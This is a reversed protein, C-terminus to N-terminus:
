KWKVRSIKMTMKIDKLPRNMRRDTPQAAISDIVDLGEIVEGFVTYAGDLHPTGGHEAYTRLQEDTYTVGRGGRRLQTTDAETGHVIYFQSGSSEKKPNVQDGQRAAALAGKKHIFESKIEAPLTYGPGGQGLQKRAEADKSEPDGGQVMFNKIVRHFLLDDYFGENVLKLFNEKHIPTEDYLRITMDGYETSLVVVEIKKEVPPQIGASLAICTAVGAILVLHKFRFLPSHFNKM